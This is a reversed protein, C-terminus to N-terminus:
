MVYMVHVHCVHIYMSTIHPWMYMHGVHVNMYVPRVHACTCTCEYVHVVGTGGSHQTHVATHYLLRLPLRYVCVYMYTCMCVHTCTM